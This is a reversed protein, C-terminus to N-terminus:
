TRRWRGCNSASVITHDAGGQQELHILNLASVRITSRCRCASPFSTSPVLRRRRSKCPESPLGLRAPRRERGGVGPGCVRGIDAPQQHPRGCRAQFELAAYAQGGAGDDGASLSIAGSLAAGLSGGIHVRRSGRQDPNPRRGHTRRADTILGARLSREALGRPGRLLREVPHRLQAPCVGGRGLLGPRGAAALQADLM